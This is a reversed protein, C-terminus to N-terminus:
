GASGTKEATRDKERVRRVSALLESVDKAGTHLEDGIVFGPTGDVGITSALKLNQEIAKRIEDSEMDRVARKEDLKAARVAAVLSEQTVRGPTAFVRDYFAKYKGQKAAALALQAAKKSLPPQGPPDLIPLDRYVIRVGRDAAILKEIEEHATRCFPCRFDFFEVVTVDGNPNGAVAGPFPTELNVRMDRLANTSERENMSRVSQLIVEPHALIYEKMMADTLSPAAKVPATNKSGTETGNFESQATPMKGSFAFSLGIASLTIAAVALWIRAM